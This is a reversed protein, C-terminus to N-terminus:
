GQKLNAAATLRIDIKVASDIRARVPIRRKDDAVWIVMKGEREIIRGPGFLDPELRWCWVKGFISKQQERATVKVPIRYVLGSDSLTVEFTRNLELPMLRISYLGSILDHTAGELNSAINRPPRMPDKPDTEVYTVRNAGYDFVAESDRIRDKQVDHHTSKLAKFEAADIISEYNQLFSFGFMKVLTGKSRAKGTIVYDYSDAAKGITFSLDAVSTAPLLSSIRVKGDYTLTEGYTFPRSDVASKGDTQGATCVVLVALCLTLLTASFLKKM